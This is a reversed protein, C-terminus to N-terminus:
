RKAVTEGEKTRERQGDRERGGRGEGRGGRYRETAEEM